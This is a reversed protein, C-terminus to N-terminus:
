ATISGRENWPPLFPPRRKSKLCGGQSSVVVTETKDRFAFLRFYKKNYLTRFEWTEGTLKKFLEKDTVVRAKYINYLIKERSKDDLNDLFEIAEEFFEVNFKPKM